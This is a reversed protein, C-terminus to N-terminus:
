VRLVSLVSVLVYEVNHVFKGLVHFTVATYLCQTMPTFPRPKPAGVLCKYLSLPVSNVQLMLSSNLLSSPSSHFYVALCEGCLLPEQLLFWQVSSLFNSFNTLSVLPWTSMFLHKACAMKAM